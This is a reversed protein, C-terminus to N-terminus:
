SRIDSMTCDDDALHWEEKGLWGIKDWFAFSLGSDFHSTRLSVLSEAFVTKRDRREFSISRRDDKVVHYM